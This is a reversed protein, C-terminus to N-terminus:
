LRQIICYKKREFRVCANMHTHFYSTWLLTVLVYFVQSSSVMASTFKINHSRNHIASLFPTVFHSNKFDHMRFDNTWLFVYIVLLVSTHLGWHPPRICVPDINALTHSCHLWTCSIKQLEIFIIERHVEFSSLAPSIYCAKSNLFFFGLVYLSPYMHYIGWLATFVMRDTSVHTPKQKFNRSLLSPWKTLFLYLNKPSWPYLHRSLIPGHCALM